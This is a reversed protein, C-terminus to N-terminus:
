PYTLVDRGGIAKLFFHGWRMTAGDLLLPWEGGSIIANVSSVGVVSVMVPRSLIITTNRAALYYGQNRASIRAIQVTFWVCSPTLSTYLASRFDSELHIFRGIMTVALVAM